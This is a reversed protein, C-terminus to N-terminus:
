KLSEIKQTYAQAPQLGVMRDVVQGNKYFIVTPVSRIGDKIALNSHLDINVEGANVNPYEKLVGDMIPTLVKCPGCWDAAYKIITLKDSNILSNYSTSDIKEM